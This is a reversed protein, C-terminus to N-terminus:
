NSDVAFYHVFLSGVFAVLLLALTIAVFIIARPPAISIVVPSSANIIYNPIKYNQNTYEALSKGLQKAQDESSAEYTVDVNSSISTIDPLTFLKSLSGSSSVSPLPLSAATYVDSITKPSKLWALLNNRALIESELTYYGDYKYISTNDQNSDKNRMVTFTVTGEQSAKFQSSGWWGLILGLALAVVWIKWYRAVFQKIYRQESM